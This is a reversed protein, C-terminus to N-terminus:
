QETNEILPLVLDNSDDLKDISENIVKSLNEIERIVEEENIGLFTMEYASHALIDVESFQDLTESNIEMAMWESWPSFEIAWMNSPSKGCVYYEYDHLEDIVCDEIFLDINDNKMKKPIVERMNDLVIKYDYTSSYFNDIRDIIEKNQHKELLEHLQM